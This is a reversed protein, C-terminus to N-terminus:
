SKIRKATTPPRKAQRSKRKEEVVREKHVRIRTDCEEPMAYWWGRGDPEVIVDVARCKRLWHLAANVADAQCKTHHVILTRTAFDDRARLWELVISTTTSQRFKM